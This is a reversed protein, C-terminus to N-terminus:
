GDRRELRAVLRDAVDVGTAAEFARFGPTRNVELVYTEGKSRLIDVGGFERGLARSAAEALRELEASLPEKVPRGGVAVNARFDGKPVIRRMAGIAQGGITLVRVDHDAPLYEQLSFFGFNRGSLIKRLDSPKKALHVFTGLGGHVGKVVLPFGLEKAAAESTEASFCQITKPVRLGAAELTLAEWTKSMIFPRGDGVGDFVRGGNRRFTEAL